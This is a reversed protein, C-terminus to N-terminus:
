REPPEFTVQFMTPWYKGTIWFTQTRPDYAIGNLVDAASREMPSILGSADITATVKGTELDIRVIFDKQWVNAYLQGQALELENLETLPKGALTVQVSGLKAFSTPDRFTLRSTGDSMILRRGDWALGWGQGEYALEEVPLLSEADYVLARGSNWTLQILRGDVLALGEGFLRPHLEHLALVQGTEPDVRRVSSEEYQGTSECLVDGDWVLGQTFACRDHPYEAVVEVVLQEVGKDDVAM